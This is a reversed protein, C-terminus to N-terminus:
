RRHDASTSASGNRERSYARTSRCPASRSPLISKSTAPRSTPFQNMVFEAAIRGGAVGVDARYSALGSGDVVTGNRIVLDYKM